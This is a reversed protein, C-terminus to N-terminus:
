QRSVRVWDRGFWMGDRTIVSQGPELTKRRAIADRLTEVAIIGDLLEASSQRDRSRRSLSDAPPGGQGACAKRGRCDHAGLMSATWTSEAISEIGDVCVAELYSGLATEVAREWGPAVTLLQALRPIASSSGARALWEVVRGAQAQGLAAKQVAEVAVLEGRAVQLEARAADLAAAGQREAERLPMCRRSRRTSNRQAVRGRDRAQQEATAFEDPARRFRMSELQAREQALRERQAKLRALGVEIQEIRAQEVLSARAIGGGIRPQVSGM